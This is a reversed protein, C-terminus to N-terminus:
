KQKLHIPQFFAITKGLCGTTLWFLLDTGHHSNAPSPHEAHWAYLSQPM